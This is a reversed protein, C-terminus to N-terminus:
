GFTTSLYYKQVAETNAFAPSGYVRSKVSKNYIELTLAELSIELGDDTEIDIKNPIKTVSPLSAVTGKFESGDFAIKTIKSLEFSTGNSTDEWIINSNDIKPRIAVPNLILNGKKVNVYYVNNYGVDTYDEIQMYGGLDVM